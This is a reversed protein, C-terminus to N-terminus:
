PKIDASDIPLKIRITQYIIFSIWLYLVPLIVVFQRNDASVLSSGGLYIFAILLLGYITYPLRKWNYLSFLGAILMSVFVISFYWVKTLPVEFTYNGPFGFFLRSINSYWNKLYKAPHNKINEIAIRKLAEDQEIGRFQRAYEFDKAHHETLMKVAMEKEPGSVNADFYASNWAGYEYPYPTSMWYLTDGGASGWYFFKGTLNYTYALYPLTVGLATVLLIVGNRLVPMNRRLLWVLLAFPLLIMLVYGFVVKTLVLYGFFLGSFIFYKRNKSYAGKLFYYSFATLLMMTLSETYLLLMYNYSSYCFGWFLSVTMAMAFPVMLRLAKFLFVISLYQFLGNLLVMFLKPLGMAFFPLMVLPYGPGNTLDIDPAPPSYFGNMLNEIFYVYRPEDGKLANSHFQVIYVSYLALFPLFVLYPNNFSLHKRM